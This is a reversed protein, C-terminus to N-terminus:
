LIPVRKLIEHVIDDTNVDEAQGEYNLLIRHRLVSLAVDKVDKQTVFARGELLAKAKAAIHLSISARPSGGFEIYKGTEVHYKEPFRTADVLRVIYKEIKKDLYIQQVIKQANVIWSPSLVSKLKYDEFENITVNNTLIVEEEEATPYRLIVKVLFRDVQAEPLKYTGLSEVPNQTAMVFFPRPLKFSNRGITVQHEQMAELLASQVKPPARNVEDALVFHAFVPGKVTYFGKGEEYTTIGTIDTPLLDPTFQIRSFKCGTVSSLAKVLLTKGIGPVGEVLVDGKCLLALFLEDVITDQGILVKKMEQRTKELSKAIAVAKKKVTASEVGKKGSM